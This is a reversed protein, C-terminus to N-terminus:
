KQLLYEQQEQTHLQVYMDVFNRTKENGKIGLQEFLIEGKTRILDQLKVKIDAQDIDIVNKLKSFVYENEYLVKQSKFFIDMFNDINIFDDFKWSTLCEEKIDQPLNNFENITNCTPWTKSKIESYRKALWIDRIGFVTLGDMFWHANKAKALNWQTDFDTYLVIKKENCLNFDDATPNVTFYVKNTLMSNKTIRNNPWIESNKWEKIKQINWHDKIIRDFDQTGNDFICCHQGALLLLHLCFFGGSGGYYFLHIDNSM